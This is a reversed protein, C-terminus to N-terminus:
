RVSSPISSSSYRADLPVFRRTPRIPANYRKLARREAERKREYREIVAEIVGYVVIFVVAVIILQLLIGWFREELTMTLHMMM